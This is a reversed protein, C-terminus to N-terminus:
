TRSKIEQIVKEYRGSPDPVLDPHKEAVWQKLKELPFWKLAGVESQQKNLITGTDLKCLFTHNFERDLLVESHKNETKFVGIKELKELSIAIGIEEQVERVAAPGIGEKAGVHGAVSADWKLPFTDKTSGRLQLLVNGDPRYCWVHVTPHFLGKQHAELKLCSQGTRNGNEDLIDVLEDMSMTEFWSPHTM